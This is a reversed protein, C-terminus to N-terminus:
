RRRTRTPRWCRRANRRSCAAPMAFRGPWNHPLRATHGPAPRRTRGGRTLTPPTADEDGAGEAHHALRAEDPEGAPPSGLAARIRGNLARRRHPTVASEVALRALEHRFAFGARSRASCGPRSATTSTGSTRPPLRRWCGSSQAVRSSHWSTSCAGPRGTSGAARPLVADRVTAPLLEGGAALAETVYFPNGGTLEYLVSADAGHPEALAQVAGLSLPQVSCRTVGRASALEGLVRRLPHDGGVEDDRYTALVLSSTTDIRRCLVRLVDLTAEDAWHVDELVLVTQSALADILAIAVDRAAASERVRAAVTRDIAEAVDLFPGLPTPTTLNDCAGSFIRSGSALESFARVLATKGVGPRAAWSCSGDARAASKRSSHSCGTVSSCAM